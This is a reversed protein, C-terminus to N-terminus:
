KIFKKINKKNGSRVMEYLPFAFIKNKNNKIKKLFTIM